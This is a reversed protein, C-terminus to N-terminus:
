ASVGGYWNRRRARAGQFAYRYNGSNSNRGPLQEGFPYYDAFSKIVPSGNVKQIVARVNGLHDTIEYTSTASSRNYVGLRKLGYVPL